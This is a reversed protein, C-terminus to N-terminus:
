VSERARPKTESGTLSVTPNIVSNFLTLRQENLLSRLHQLERELEAYVEIVLRIDGNRSVQELRHVFLLLSSNSSVQSAGRMMKQAIQVLSLRDQRQVAQRISALQETCDVLFLELLELRIGRNKDESPSSHVSCQTEELQNTRM